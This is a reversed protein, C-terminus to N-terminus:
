YKGFDDGLSIIKENEESTSKSRLKGAVSTSESASKGVSGSGLNYISLLERMRSAQSSLEDSAAACQESTASNTSVVQSIQGIAQNIQAVATAQYNSSDAIGTILAESNRVVETIVELSKYTASAMRSGVEVKNISDEILEATEAAAQASKAALNRVEEAVVAFGKGAEGARAAEVAANLALINTQFAIDDIVKIIKSISESSKNIDAMAELMESMENNGARVDDIVQNVMGAADAAETANQKAKEAVEAISATVEEIASAQEASGQALSESASAVQSASTMVQYAGDNINSLARRNSEVMQAIAHGLKDEDSKVKVDVMLNGDAVAQAVKADEDHTKALENVLDALHGFEDNYKIKLNVDTDGKALKETAITLDRLSIRVQRALTICFFYMIAFCIIAAIISVIVMSNFYKNPNEATLIGRTRALTIIFLIAFSVFSISFSIILRTHFKLNKWM